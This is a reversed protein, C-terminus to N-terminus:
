GEAISALTDMRAMAQAVLAERDADDLVPMPVFSLGVKVLANAMDVAKRLEVPSAREM